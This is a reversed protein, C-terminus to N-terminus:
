AAYEVRHARPDLSKLANELTQGLHDKCLYGSVNQPPIEQHSVPLGSTLFVFVPLKSFANVARIENLFEAGSMRPMNLDLAVIFSPLIGQAEEAAASLTDLAQQGDHAVKTANLIGLKQIARKMAWISVHDDDVLLFTAPQPPLAM